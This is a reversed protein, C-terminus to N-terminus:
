CYHAGYFVLMEEILATRRSTEPLDTDRFNSFNDQLKHLVVDM